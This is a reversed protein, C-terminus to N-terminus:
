KVYIYVNRTESDSINLILSINKKYYAGSAARLTPYLNNGPPILTNNDPNYFDYLYNITGIPLEKEIFLVIDDHVEGGLSDATNIFYSNAIIIGVKNNNEQNYLIGWVHNEYSYGFPLKIATEEFSYTNTFINLESKKYYVNYATM